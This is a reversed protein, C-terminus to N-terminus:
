LIELDYNKLRELDIPNIQSDCIFYDLDNLSAFAAISSKNIKSHDILAAVRKSHKVMEKKLEVEYVNFDTLGTDFSFGNASTFMIDVNIQNLINIGLTGELSSSGNRVVGGLLIVTINPNERLELATYIGSTLVTLRLSSKKLLDALELGTSSADLLICYGNSILGLAKKAIEVKQEKNKKKRVSFVTENNPSEILVAGGHTRNLLGEEELKTLDLRLTAESVKTINSLEKVTIRKKKNLIEMIKLRRESAFLKSM